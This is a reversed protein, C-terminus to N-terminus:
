DQYLPLEKVPIIGKIREEIVQYHKKLCDFPILYGTVEETLMYKDSFRTDEETFFVRGFLEIRKGKAAKKELKGTEPNEIHKFYPTQYEETETINTYSMCCHGLGEDYYSDFDFTVEDESCINNENHACEISYCNIKSM